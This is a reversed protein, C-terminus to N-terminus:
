SFVDTVHISVGRTLATFRYILTCILTLPLAIFFWAFAQMVLLAVTMGAATPINLEIQSSSLVAIIQVCAFLAQVMTARLLAHGFIPWFRTLNKHRITRASWIAVLPSGFTFILVGPLVIAKQRLDPPPSTLFQYSLLLGIITPITAAAIIGIWYWRQAPLKLVLDPKGSM